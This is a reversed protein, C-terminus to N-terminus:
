DRGIPMSQLHIEHEPASLILDYSAVPLGEFLFSGLDDVTVSGFHHNDRWLHATVNETPAIGTILGLMARCDPQNEDSQIELAIQIEGAEYILPREEDGRVGALAPALSPAGFAGAWSPGSLLRAITVKVQSAAKELPSPERRPDPEALFTRLQAREEACFPCITLHDSVAQAQSAPLLGLHYEGLERSTPCTARYLSRTLAQQLDALMDARCQCHPCVQLHASVGPEAEGDLYALLQIDELEPPAVCSM